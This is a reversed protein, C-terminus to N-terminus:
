LYLNLRRPIVWFFVYLMCFVAFTQFLFYTYETQLLVQCYYIHRGCTRADYCSEFLDVLLIFCNWLNIVQRKHVVWCTEPVKEDMMLLMCSCWCGRTKGNAVPPLVLPQQHLQISRIIPPFTGSVHQATCLRWTIFKHFKKMKNTLKNSYYYIYQQNASLFNGCPCVIIHCLAWNM